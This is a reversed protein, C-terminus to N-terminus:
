AHDIGHPIEEYQVIAIPRDAVHRLMAISQDIGSPRNRALWLRRHEALLREVEDVWPSEDIAGPWGLQSRARSVGLRLWAAAAVIEDAWLPGDLDSSTSDLARQICASLEEDAATLMAPTMGGAALLEPASETTLLAALTGAEPASPVILDNAHGLRWTAEALAEDHVVFRALGDALDPASSPNWSLAAATVFGVQAKGLESSGLVDWFRLTNNASGTVATHGDASMALATITSDIQFASNQRGTVIDWLRLTEDSGAALFLTTHPVFALGSVSNDLATFRQLTLGTQPDLLVMDGSSFGALIQRGDASVVLATVRTADTGLPTVTWANASQIRSIQGSRSGTVIVSGDDSVSLRTTEGTVNIPQIGAAYAVANVKQGAYTQAQALVVRQGTAIDWQIFNDTADKSASLVQKGDPSIAVDIVGSTHGAFTQVTEGSTTDLLLVRGTDLGVAVREGDTGFDLAIVRGQMPLRLRTGPGFAINALEREAQPPASDSEAAAVALALSLDVNNDGFAQAASAAIALSRAKDESLRSLKIQTDLQDNSDRLAAEQRQLTANSQIIVLSGIMLVAIFAVLGIAVFRAQRASRQQLALERELREQEAQERSARTQLSAEIYERQLRTLDHDDLWIEARQLRKGTLLYAVDRGSNQWDQSAKRLESEYRLDDADSAVWGKFREWERILAEHSVELWVIPETGGTNISRSAILLRADPATLLNIIEQVLEPAVDRFQVESLAVKRRTADGTPAVEVLRLLVRRMVEQQAQPLADYIEEAHRALAKQVGGIADYAAQTLRAGERRDYLEKLAYQLLPLSGPQNKVDEIINDVLKPDFQLGVAQAPGEIARVLNSTTMETAILLRDGEFLAALDPYRSLSGFFDARMTVIILTRSNADRALALLATFFAEREVDGARTFAEEFQDVVLVLRADAPLGKLADDVVKAGEGTRLRNASQAPTIHADQQALLPNLRIAWNDIPASGPTFILVPSQQSGTLAGSRLRPIVGARVLSSKGSGSAGVVALFPQKALKELARQTLDERGFFYAADREQFAELGKFPNPITSPDYVDYSGLRRGGPLAELLEKFALEYRNEFRIFQVETLWKLTPHAQLENFCEEVMVPYVRKGATRTTEIERQVWESAIAAPSLCLVIFEARDLGRFIEQQWVEGVQIQRLDIWVDLGADGLDRALREAFAENKRSYSIFVRNM